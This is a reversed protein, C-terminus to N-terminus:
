AQPGQPLDAAGTRASQAGASDLAARRNIGRRLRGTIGRRLRGAACLGAGCRRRCVASGSDWALAQWFPDGAHAAAEQSEKDKTTPLCVSSAFYAKSLRTQLAKLKCLKPLCNGFLQM